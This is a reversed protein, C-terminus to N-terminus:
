GQWCRYWVTKLKVCIGRQKGRPEPTFVRRGRLVHQLVQRAMPMRKRVEGLETALKRREAGRYPLRRRCGGGQRRSRRSVAQLRLAM